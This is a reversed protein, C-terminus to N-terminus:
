RLHMASLSSISNLIHIILPYNFEFVVSPWLHSHVLPRTYFDATWNCIDCYTPQMIAVMHLDRICVHPGINTMLTCSSARDCLPALGDRSLTKFVLNSLKWQIGTISHWRQKYSSTKLFSRCSRAFDSPVELTSLNMKFVCYKSGRILARCIKDVLGSNISLVGPTSAPVNREFDACQRITIPSNVDVHWWYDSFQSHLIRPDDGGM